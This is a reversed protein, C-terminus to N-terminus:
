VVQAGDEIVRVSQQGDNIDTVTVVPTPLNNLIDAIDTSGTISSLSASVGGGDRFKTIGGDRFRVGGTAHNMESIANVFDPRAWIGRNVILEGGEAEHIKGGLSFPVGGAEHSAGKIVGGTKAPFDLSGGQKFKPAASLAKKANVIGATVAAVGAAIAAINAPPPGAAAGQAVAAAVGKATDIGIQFLAAAKQLKANDGALAAVNKFLDSFSQATDLNDQVKAMRLSRSLQKRKENFEEELLLREAESGKFLLLENEQQIRQLELKAADAEARNEAQLVNLEAEAEIDALRQQNVAESEANRQESEAQRYESDIELRRDNFQKRLESLIENKLKESVELLNIEAKRKKHEITLEERALDEADKIANLKNKERLAELMDNAETNAAIIEAQKKQEAKVQANNASNIQGQILKTERLRQRTLEDRQAQLEALRLNGEADTDSLDQESKLLEVQLDLREQEADNVQKLLDLAKKGAAAREASSLSTNAALLKQQEVQERLQPILRANRLEVDRLALSLDVMSQATDNSEKSFTVLADVTGEIGTNLDVFDKGVDVLADGAASFEGEFLAKSAKGLGAFINQLAKIRNTFQGVIFDGLDKLAEKPSEFAKLAKGQIFGVIREFAVQLPKIARTVTDVGKQTSLFAAVLAGIAVVIAGIGTSILALRFVKLAAASGTTATTAARQATAQAIIEQRFLDLKSSLQGLNVGMVNISGAAETLGREYFGVQRQARGTSKEQNLLSENLKDIGAKLEKGRKSNEREEEGLADWEKTLARLVGRQQELSGTNEETAARLNKADRTAKQKEVSLSKQQVEIKGLEKFYEEETIVSAKAQVELEKRALKLENTAKSIRAFDNAIKDADLNVQFLIDNEDAM